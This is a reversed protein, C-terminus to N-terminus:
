RFYEKHKFTIKQLTKTSHFNNWGPLLTPQNKSFNYTDINLGNRYTNKGDFKIVDGPKIEIGAIKIIDGSDTMYFNFGQKDDKTIHEGMTIEVVSDQNFQTIPVSGNYYVSGVKLNYFTHKRTNDSEEFVRSDEISYNKTDTNYDISEFYPLEITEFELDIEGAIEESPFSIENVLGVYIQKDDVYELDFVQPKPNFIDQYKITPDNTALERLYFHGRFLRQIMAKLQSVHAIQEVEYRLKLSVTKKEEVVSNYFRGNLNDITSFDRKYGAGKVDYSAVKLAKQTYINDSLRYKSDNKIVEIDHAIM